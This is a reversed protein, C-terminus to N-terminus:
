RAVKREARRVREFYLLYLGSAVVIACGVLTWADPWDGFV